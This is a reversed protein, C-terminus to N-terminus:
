WGRDQRVDLLIYRNSLQRGNEDYRKIIEIYGKEELTQLSNRFAKDSMGAVEMLTRKSPYCDSTKNDAYLCLVSYLSKDSAKLSKDEIVARTVMVFPTTRRDLITREKKQIEVM